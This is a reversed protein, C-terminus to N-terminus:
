DSLLNLKKITYILPIGLLFCAALEGIAVQAGFVAMSPFFSEMSTAAAIVAGIVVGNIIVPPLAALWLNKCKSTLVAALFTALTGFIVDLPNAGLPNLLNALFCGVTLGWITDKKVFPLLTLAEGIRIQLAGYSIPALLLSIGAYLAAILSNVVLKNANM